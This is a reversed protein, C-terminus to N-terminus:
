CALRIESPQRLDLKRSGPQKSFVRGLRDQAFGTAVFDLFHRLTLVPHRYRERIVNRDAKRMDLYEVGISYMEFFDVDIWVVRTAAESRAEDHVHTKLQRQALRITQHSQSTLM